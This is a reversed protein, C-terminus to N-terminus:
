KTKLKAVFLVPQYYNLLLSNDEQLPNYMCKGPLEDKLIEFGMTDM